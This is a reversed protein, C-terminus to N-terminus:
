KNSKETTALERFNDAERKKTESPTKVLRILREEIQSLNQKQFPFPFHFDYYFYQNTGRGGLLVTNPFLDLAAHALCEAASQHIDFYGSSDTKSLTSNEDFERNKLNNRHSLNKQDM